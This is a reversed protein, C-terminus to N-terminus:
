KKNFMKEIAVYNPTHLKKRKYHQLRKKIKYLGTELYAEVNQHTLPIPLDDGIIANMEEITKKYYWSLANKNKMKALKMFGLSKLKPIFYKFYKVKDKVVYWGHLHVNGDHTLEPAFAFSSFLQKCNKIMLDLLIKYQDRPSTTPYFAPNPNWTFLVVHDTDYIDAEADEAISVYATDYLYNTDEAHKDPNNGPYNESYYEAAPMTRYDLPRLSM